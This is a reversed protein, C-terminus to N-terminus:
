GLQSVARQSPSPPFSCQTIGEPDTRAGVELHRLSPRNQANRYTSLQLPHPAHSPSTSNKHDAPGTHAQAGPPLLRLPDRESLGQHTPHAWLAAWMGKVGM